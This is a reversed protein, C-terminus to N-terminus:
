DRKTKIQPKLKSDKNTKTEDFSLITGGFGVAWGKRGTFFVKELRHKIKTDSKTWVNGATTTYLITGEDGVAWGEATNLFFIDTLNQTVGSKQEHWSKGGNITQYIKGEGGLTWGLKRNIFFVKNLRTKADGALTARNWTAGADETFLVSGGAGVITGHFEDSFNGDLLLYRVPSIMRKWTKADDQLAFLVGTEGIAMAFGNKGFFIRTIRERGGGFDSRTWTVGGDSTKLLYSSGMAGREYINKECLLWGNNEDAFYIQGITDSTFKERANWTKGGDTTSLFTGGSGAIFGKNENVFHVDHLWSLTGSKQTTWDAAKTTQLFVLCCAIILFFKISVM